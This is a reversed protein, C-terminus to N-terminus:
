IPFTLLRECGFSQGCSSSDFLGRAVRLSSHHRGGRRYSTKGGRASLSWHNRVGCMCILKSNHSTYTTHANIHTNHTRSMYMCHHLCAGSCVCMCISMCVSMYISPSLSSSFVIFFLCILTPSLVLLLVSSRLCFRLLHQFGGSGCIDFKETEDM